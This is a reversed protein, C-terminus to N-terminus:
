SEGTEEAPTGDPTEDAPTGADRRRGRRREGPAATAQEVERYVFDAPGFSRTRRAQERDAADSADEFLNPWTAVIPSDDAHLTGEVVTLNDPGFFTTIARRM